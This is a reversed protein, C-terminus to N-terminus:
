IHILSLILLTNEFIGQQKLENTIKGVIKDMYNVMDIFYRTDPTSRTEISSWEPSDPTPVFPDHVLLM